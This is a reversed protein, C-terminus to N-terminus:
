PIPFPQLTELDNQFRVYFPLRRLGDKTTRSKHFKECAMNKLSVYDLNNKEFKKTELFQTKNNVGKWNSYLNRGTLRSTM